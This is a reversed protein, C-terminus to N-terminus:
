TTWRRRCGAARPWRGCGNSCRVRRPARTSRAGCVARRSGGRGPAAARSPDAVGDLLALLAASPTGTVVATLDNQLVVSSRAAPAMAAAAAIAEPAREALLHRCLATPTGQALLGLAHAERWIGAAFRGFDAGSDEAVVPHLWDFRAALADATIARGAPALRDITRLLGARLRTLMIEQEEDWALAREDASGPALPCAPMELWEAILDILQKGPELATFEAYHGAVTLGDDDISILGGATAVEVVLRTLDEGQGSEKSLRRLERIGLGGSKLLNVPARGVAALVQGAAAAADREAAGADVATAQLEPPEVDFPARYDVGRLALAVERPMRGGGGWGAAVLLGNDVAWPLDRVVDGLVFMGVVAVGTRVAEEALRRRDAPAARDALARVNDPDSLWGAIAAVADPKLRGAPVGFQEALKRLHPVTLENFLQAARPGLDLPQPWMDELHDAAFGGDLPWILGLGSLRALSARLAADEGAVGILASLRPLTWGDGLAAAAEAVQLDARSVQSCAIRLSEPELMRVALRTLTPPLPEMTLDRRMAALEALEPETLGHLRTILANRSTESVPVAAVTSSWGDVASCTVRPRAPDADCEAM